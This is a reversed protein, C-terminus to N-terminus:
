AAVFVRAEGVDVRLPMGLDRRVTVCGAIADRINDLLEDVTKGQSMCGPLEPVEGIIWGDEGSYYIVRYPKEDPM